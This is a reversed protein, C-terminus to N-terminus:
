AAQLDSNEELSKITKSVWEIATEASDIGMKPVIIAGDELLVKPMDSAKGMGQSVQFDTVSLMAQFGYLRAHGALCLPVALSNINLQDDSHKIRVIDIIWQGNIGGRETVDVGMIEVKYGAEMLLDALKLVAAGRWFVTSSRIAAGQGMQAYLTIQKQSFHAAKRKRTWARGFDGAYARHIDYEDGESGRHIKRRLSIPAQVDIQQTMAQLKEGGAPWGHKASHIVDAQTEHGEGFWDSNPAPRTWFHQMREAHNFGQAEMGEYEYLGDFQRVIANSDGIKTIQKIMQLGGYYRGMDANDRGRYIFL